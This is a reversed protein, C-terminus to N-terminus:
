SWYPLFTNKQPESKVEKEITQDSSMTIEIYSNMEASKNFKNQISTTKWDMFEIYFDWIESFNIKMNVTANQKLQAFHDNYPFCQITHNMSGEVIDILPISNYSIFKNLYFSETDWVEM